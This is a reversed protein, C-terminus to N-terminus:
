FKNPTLTLALQLIKFNEPCKLAVFVLTALNKPIQNKKDSFAFNYITGPFFALQAWM